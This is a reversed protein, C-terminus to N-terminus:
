STLWRQPSFFSGGEANSRMQKRILAVMWSGVPVEHGRFSMEATTENLIVPAPPQLRLTELICSEVFPLQGLDDDNEPNRGLADVEKRARAQANPYLCLYYLCWALAASATESGAFFFTVINGELDRKELQLLKGLLDSRRCEGGEARRQMALDSAFKNLREISTHFKKIMPDLNWPFHNRTTFPFVARDLISTSGEVFDSLTEAIEHFSGDARIGDPNLFYFDMGFTTLCLVDLSCLML